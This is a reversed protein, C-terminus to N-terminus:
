IWSPIIMSQHIAVLYILDFLTNISALFLNTPWPTPRQLWFTGWIGPELFWTWGKRKLMMEGTHLIWGNRELTDRLTSGVLAQRETAQRTIICHAPTGYSLCRYHYQYLEAKHTSERRQKQSVENRWIRKCKIQKYTVSKVCAAKVLM